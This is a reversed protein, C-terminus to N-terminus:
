DFVIVSAGLCPVRIHLIPSPCQNKEADCFLLLTGLRLPGRSYGGGDFIALGEEEEEINDTDWEEDDISSDGKEIQLEEKMEAM